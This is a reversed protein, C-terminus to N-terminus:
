PDHPEEVLAKFLSSGFPDKHDKVKVRATYVCRYPPGNKLNLKLAGSGNGPMFFTINIFEKLDLIQRTALKVPDRCIVEEKFVDYIVQRGESDKGRWKSGLLWAEFGAYQEKPLAQVYRSWGAEPVIRGTIPKITEELLHCPIEFHVPDLERDFEECYLQFLNVSVRLYVHLTNLFFFEYDAAYKGLNKEEQCFTETYKGDVESIKRQVATGEPLFSNRNQPTSV